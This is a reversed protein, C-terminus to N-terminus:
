SVYTSATYVIVGDSYHESHARVAPSSTNLTVRVSATLSQNEASGRAIRNGSGDYMAVYVGVLATRSTTETKGFAQYAQCTLTCYYDEGNYTVNDYVASVNLMLSMVLMVALSLALIKRMLKM